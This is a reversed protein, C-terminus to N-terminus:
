LSYCRAANGSAIKKKDAHSLGLEELTGQLVRLHDEINTTGGAGLTCVPWDGGFFCKDTGFTKICAKYTPKLIACSPELARAIIGSLKCYVNPQAALAAMTGKWEELTHTAWGPEHPSDQGDVVYPDADTFYHSGMWGCVLHACKNALRSLICFQALAAHAAGHIM